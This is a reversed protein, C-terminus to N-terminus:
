SDSIKEEADCDVEILESDQKAIKLADSTLLFYFKFASRAM